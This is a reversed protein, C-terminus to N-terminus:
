DTKKKRLSKGTSRYKQYITYILLFHSRVKVKSMVSMGQFISQFADCLEAVLVPVMISYMITLSTMPTTETEFQMDCWVLYTGGLLIVLTIAGSSSPRVLESKSLNAYQASLATAFRNKFSEHLNLFDSTTSCISNYYEEVISLKKSLFSQSRLYYISSVSAM